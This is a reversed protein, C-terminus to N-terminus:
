SRKPSMKLFTAFLWRTPPRVSQTRYVCMSKRNELKSPQDGGGTLTQSVEGTGEKGTRKIRRRERKQGVTSGKEEHDLEFYALPFARQRNTSYLKVFTLSEDLWTENQGKHRVTFRSFRDTFFGEM